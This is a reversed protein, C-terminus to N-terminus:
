LEDFNCVGFLEREYNSFLERIKIFFFKTRASLSEYFQHVLISVTLWALRPFPCVCEQEERRVPRVLM